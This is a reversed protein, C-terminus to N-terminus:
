IRRGLRPRSFGDSRRRPPDRVSMKTQDHIGPRPVYLATRPWGYSFGDMGSVPFGDLADSLKQALSKGNGDPPVGTWSAMLAIRKMGDRLKAKAGEAMEDITVIRMDGDYLHWPSAQASITLVDTDAKASMSYDYVAKAADICRDPPACCDISISGELTLSSECDALAHQGVGIIVISLLAAAPRILWRRKIRCLRTPGLRTIM